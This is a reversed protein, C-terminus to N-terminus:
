KLFLNTGEAGAQDVDYSSISKKQNVGKLKAFDLVTWNLANVSRVYFLHRSLDNMVTWYTVESGLKNIPGDGFGGPRDMSLDFPRDFNNMIHGLTVVADDPTKAKRVYTSYFAAKVFRAAAYGASPLTQLANGPDTSHVTLSGFKGTNQDMNSQTYNKLNTLHWPFQPFNTMVGVPNDYVNMKNNDFEIVIGAGTKDFIAYHGPIPVNGMMPVLPLWMQADMSALAAKVEAVTKFNGLVWNGFDGISLIKSPDTSTPKATWPASDPDYYANLSFTLGQDNSGECLLAQKANPVADLTMGLVPYKTDFAMGQKNDPTSSVIHSGVPLYTLSTPIKSSFEMTRGQYYNGNKDSVLLATCASSNSLLSLLLGACLLSTTFTKM